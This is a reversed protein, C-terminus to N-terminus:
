STISQTIAAGTAAIASGLDVQRGAQAPKYIFEGIYLYARSGKEGKASKESRIRM